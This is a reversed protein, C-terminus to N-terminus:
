TSVGFNTAHTSILHDYLEKPVSIFKTQTSYVASLKKNGWFRGKKTGKIPRCAAVSICAKCHRVHHRDIEIDCNKKSKM